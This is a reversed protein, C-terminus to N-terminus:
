TQAAQRRRAELASIFSDLERKAANYAFYPDDSTAGLLRYLELEPETASAAHLPLQLGLGALRSAAITLLTANVSKRGAALDALGAIVRDAAPLGALLREITDVDAPGRV